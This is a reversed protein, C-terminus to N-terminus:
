LSCVMRFLCCLPVFGCLNLVVFDGSVDTSWQFKYIKYERYCAVAVACGGAGLMAAIKLKRRLPMRLKWILPIPIALIMADTIIALATDTLFIKPQDM